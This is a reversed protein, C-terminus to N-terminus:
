EKQNKTVELIKNKVYNQGRSLITYRYKITKDLIKERRVFTGTVDKLAMSISEPTIPIGFQEKFIDELEDPTLGPHKPDKEFMYNLLTLCKDRVAKLKRIFSLEGVNIEIGKVSTKKIEIKPEQLIKDLKEELQKVREKLEKLENKAIKDGFM